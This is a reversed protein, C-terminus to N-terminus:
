NKNVISYDEGVPNLFAGEGKFESEMLWISEADFYGCSPCEKGKINFMVIASWAYKCKRCTIYPFVGWGPGPPTGEISNEVLKLFQTASISILSQTSNAEDYEDQRHTM